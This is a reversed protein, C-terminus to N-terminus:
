ELLHPPLYVSQASIIGHLDTNGEQEKESKDSQKDQTPQLMATKMIRERNRKQAMKVGDFRPRERVVALRNQIEPQDKLYQDLTDVLYQDVAIDKTFM